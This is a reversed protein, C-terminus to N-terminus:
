GSSRPRRRTRTQTPATAGCCASTPDAEDFSERGGVAGFLTEEVLAAKEEIDLGTLVFTMSNRFGGLYNICVKLDAPAPEGRVGAIRIRDPAEEALAITDFRAVVDPNVYRPGAIEYLLQATVTGVTV